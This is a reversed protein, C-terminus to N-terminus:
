FPNEDGRIGLEARQERTFFKGGEGGRRPLVLSKVAWMVTEELHVKAQDTEPCDRTVRDILECLEDAKHRVEKIRELNAEDPTHNTLSMALSSQLPKDLDRQRQKRMIHRVSEVTVGIADAIDRIDLGEENMENIRRLRWEAATEDHRRLESARQDEPPGGDTKVDAGPCVHDPDDSGCSSCQYM